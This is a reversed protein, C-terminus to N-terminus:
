PSITHKLIDILSKMSLDAHLIVNKMDKNINEHKQLQPFNRNYDKLSSYLDLSTNLMLPFNFLFSDWENKINLAEIVQNQEKTSQFTLDIKPIEKIGIKALLDNTRYANDFYDYAVDWTKKYDKITSDSYDKNLYSSLKTYYSTQFCTHISKAIYLTHVIMKSLEILVANKKNKDKLDKIQFYLNLGSFITGLM